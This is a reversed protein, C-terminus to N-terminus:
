ESFFITGTAVATGGSASRTKLAMGLSSTAPWVLESGPAAVWRYSARQNIGVYWLQAGAPMNTEASSNNLTYAACGTDASDLALGSSVSSMSGAPATTNTSGMATTRTVEWEYSFDAPTGATGVLLDYIRGRRLAPYAPNNLMASTPGVLLITQYTATTAVPATGAFVTSNTIAYNAM